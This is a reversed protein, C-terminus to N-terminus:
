RVPAGEAIIAHVADMNLSAGLTDAVLDIQARRAANFSVGSPVFTKGARRGVETLLTARFADSEFLGHLSTGMVRAVTLDVAGDRENGAHDSLAVWQGAGEGSTVRGHHIQYGAVRQGMCIGLRQRTVKSKEFATTVDLWGLGDVEKSKSEVGDPDSIKRGLMQYGGCVGLVLSDTRSAIARDLGRERLWALDAVTTKTGPLIVLDPQGLEAAATVWRVVVGPELALPDLDTFNSLAPFRIVAIDLSDRIPAQVEPFGSRLALSDEADIGLGHIWPVVGLTVVGTRRQLEGTADGLLARDGRFKNVVFGRIRRQYGHPLLALTGYLHAFVGGRDIDGVLIAPLKAEEAIRLNVIDHDLLNIEAPSGAGECIVVDFRRRLDDLAGLVTPLLQLKQDHYQQASITGQPKGMVVVQSSQEGTPKLLIPNMTVDPEVGAAFAQMAQARGIEDGAPTVYSNLAMNQAKFPAVRVGERNLLRCLGAVVLSKGADSTAGCVM